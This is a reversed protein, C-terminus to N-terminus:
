HAPEAVAAEAKAPMPTVNRRGVLLILLAVVSTVMMIAVMPVATHNNFVSVAASAMAGIGMRIAGMLSSASGANQSFPALSLAATNPSSFGLCCLFVFLLAITGYLGILGNVTLVLFVVSTAVQCCLAGFVLQESRFRRLLVSNVQSAGILGISLFAFIWGYVKSDVGFIDMFVLPSDAVYVFLGCFSLAGTLTYTYFSPERLVQWFNALIPRPKLSLNPNPQYSEPLWLLCALLLAVGMLALTVFVGQWGFAATVYGGVTPALMPSLGVVLLLLAFVKATDQVPFLDRVMAMCAVAAACSGVAQFFRLAILADISHLTACAASSLIYLALGVYLPKKRGYRDLLPGYLLQGASIGIFYSSLSLAVRAPTTHLDQAIAPFGPLYMDITFPGLASLSGLILILSFYRQKTM